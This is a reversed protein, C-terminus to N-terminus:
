PRKSAPGTLGKDQNGVLQYGRRTRMKEIRGIKDLGDEYSAVVAMKENGRRNHGSWSRILVWDGLIDDYLVCTYQRGNATNQWQKKMSLPTLDFDVENITGTASQRFAM